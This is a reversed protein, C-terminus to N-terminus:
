RESETIKWDTADLDDRNLTFRTPGLGTGYVLWESHIYVPYDENGKRCVKKGSKAAEIAETFNM